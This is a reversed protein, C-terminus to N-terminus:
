LECNVILHTLLRFLQLGRREVAHSLRRKKGLYKKSNDKPDIEEAFGCTLKPPPAERGDTAAAWSETGGTSPRAEPPSSSLTRWALPRRAEIM